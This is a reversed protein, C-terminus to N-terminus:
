AIGLICAAVSKEFPTRIRIHRLLDELEEDSLPNEKLYPGLDKLLFPGRRKYKQAFEWFKPQLLGLWADSLEYLDVNEKAYYELFYLLRTLLDRRKEGKKTKRLYYKLLKRLLELAKQRKPPLLRFEAEKVRPLFYHLLEDAKETWPLSACNKLNEKLKKCIEFIDVLAEKERELYIWKPGSQKKKDGRICLFAWPKEAKVASIVTISRDKISKIEKLVEQPILADKGEILEKIPQFADQLNDWFVTESRKKEQTYLKLMLEGSIYEEQYDEIYNLFEEPISINSGLINEVLLHREVLRRDTSVCFEPSDNPWYVEIAEHPSDLREIRGIRQEALRIVSPLDFFVVASAQQLNVGEAVADSCLALVNEEGSGLSFLRKILQRERKRNGTVLLIKINPFLNEMIQRLYALTILRSDYALILRHHRFLSAVFKVKTLERLDSIEKALNSIKRYIEQETKVADEFAALNKLWEPVNLSHLEYIPQFLDKAKELLDSLSSLIDGTTDKIKEQIGFFKQAAETGEIHEVLAARSSRLMAKVNFRALAPAASLRKYLFKSDIPVEKSWLDFLTKRLWIMGKLKKALQDIEKALARDNKTEGTPYLRCIERPFRCLRGFRDRYAEPQKEILRNLERKTRRVTFLQVYRRLKQRQEERLRHGKEIERRMNQYTELGEDSLNDLGLVEILRLLDELGRNIPTATMLIVHDAMSNLQITQSRRSTRSLYNHAEDILLINARRIDDLARLRAEGESISLLGQSILGAPGLMSSFSSEEERWHDMVSPPCIIYCTARNFEQRSWLRYRLAYLLALGVKTKGAGTPDAILVSGQNDLVWLAQAVALRQSPWLDLNTLLKNLGEYHDLWEGELIELVAWALAEQWTTYRLLHELLKLIEQQYDTSEKLYNEVILKLEEYRPDKCSFRCNAEKQLRLGAHSFNSSGLIAHEEGLYLKAHIKEGLRFQIRGRKIDEIFRILAGCLTISIGRKLWYEKLEQSLDVTPWPRILDIESLDVEHGLVVTIKRNPFDNLGFFSILYELSSYGTIIVYSSSDLIDQHIFNEVKVEQLNLPFHEPAPWRKEELQDLFSAQKLM